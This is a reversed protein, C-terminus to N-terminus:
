ASVGAGYGGQEVVEGNLIQGDSFGGDFIDDTADKLCADCGVLVGRRRARERGTGLGKRGHGGCSSVGKLM